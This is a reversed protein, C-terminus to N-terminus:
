VAARREPEQVTPAADVARGGGSPAEDNLSEAARLLHGDVAARLEDSLLRGNVKALAELATRDTAPLRFSTKPTHADSM